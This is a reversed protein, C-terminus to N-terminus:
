RWTIDGAKLTTANPWISGTCSPQGGDDGRRSQDGPDYRDGRARLSGGDLAGADRQLGPAASEAPLQPRPSWRAQGM